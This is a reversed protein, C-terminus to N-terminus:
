TGLYAKMRYSFVACTHTHTHTDADYNDGVSSALILQHGLFYHRHKEDALRALLLHM